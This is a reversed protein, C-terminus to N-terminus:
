SEEEHLLLVTIGVIESPKMVVTRGLNRRMLAIAKTLAEEIAADPRDDVLVPEWVELKRRESAKWNDVHFMVGIAAPRQNVQRGSFEAELRRVILQAHHERKVSDDRHEM